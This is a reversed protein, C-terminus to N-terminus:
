ISPYNQNYNQAEVKIRSKNMERNFIMVVAFIIFTFDLAILVIILIFLNSNGHDQTSGVHSNVLVMGLVGMINFFAFLVIILLMFPDKIGKVASEAIKGFFNIAVNPAGDNSADIPKRSPHNPKTM